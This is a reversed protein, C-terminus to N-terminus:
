RIFHHSSIANSFILFYILNQCLQHLYHPVFPFSQTKSREAVNCHSCDPFTGSHLPHTHTHTRTYLFLRFPAFELLHMTHFHPVNKQQFFSWCVVYMRVDLVVLSCLKNFNEEICEFQGGGGGEENVEASCVCGFSTTRHM